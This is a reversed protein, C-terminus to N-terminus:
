SLTTKDISEVKVSLKGEFLIVELSEGVKTDSHKRIIQKKGNRVVSFGRKLTALPSFSSLRESVVTFNKKHERIQNNYHLPLVDFAKLLNRSEKMRQIMQQKLERSILDLSQGPADLVARPQLHVRSKLLAFLRDKEIRYKNKLAVRLRLGQDDLSDLIESYVPVAMEAAASPTAAFADAALDSVPSDIEHGVASIIPIKSEAFARVVPEENFAMLDEFSGGGRGAIILDVGLSPDNLAEIATVISDIAENGQVLCPALLINIGPFRNRAVRIIDKIAAGTPATAVGLTVPMFPLLKKRASDFLGEEYLKKKLKEIRLRMEGEGSPMVRTINLQYDGRPAYVSISGGAVIKLGEALRVDKFKQNANKFFTCRISSQEDKLSMYIHGSSHKVLNSIEGEVYINQFYPNGELHNKIAFNLKAISWVNRTSTSDKDSAINLDPM